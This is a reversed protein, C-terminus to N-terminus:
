WSKSCTYSAFSQWYFWRGQDIGSEGQDMSHSARHHDFTSLSEEIKGELRQSVDSADQQEQKEQLQNGTNPYKQQV